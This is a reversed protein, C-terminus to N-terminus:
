DGKGCIHCKYLNFNSHLLRHQLLNQKYKFCLNCEVCNYPRVESHGKIHVLLHKKLQFSKNCKACQFQVKKIVKTYRENDSNVETEECYNNEKQDATESKVNILHLLLSHNAKCKDIFSRIEELQKVCVACVKEPFQEYATIQFLDRNIFYNIM